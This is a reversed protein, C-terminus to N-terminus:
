RLAPRRHVRAAPIHRTRRAGFGDFLLAVGSATEAFESIPISSRTGATPEIITITEGDVDDVVVFWGDITPGDLRRPFPGDTAAIHAVYPTTTGRVAEVTEFQVARLRLGFHEAARMMELLDREKSTTDFAEHIEDFPVVIGHYRLIMALLAVNADGADAESIPEVPQSARLARRRAGWGAKDYLWAFVRTIRVRTPKGHTAAVTM